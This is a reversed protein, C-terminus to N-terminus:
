RQLIMNGKAGLSGAEIRYFYPGEPMQKGSADLANWQIEHVGASQNGLNFEAVKEGNVTFISIVVPLQETLTYRIVTSSQFPNPFSEAVINTISTNVDTTQEGKSRTAPPLVPAPICCYDLELKAYDIQTDDQIYFDLNGDQLAALITTLTGGPLASLDLTVTATTGAVNWPLGVLSSIDSSWIGQGNQVLGIRDNNSEFGLARIRLILKAGTIYCNNGSFSWNFTHGFIVNMRPDDYQTSVGASYISNMYSLLTSSPSSQEAASNNLDFTDVIGSNSIRQSPSACIELNGFNLNLGMANPISNITYYVSHPATQTWGSQQIEYLIWTGSPLGTFNYYGAPDTFAIITVGTNVNRARIEWGALPSEGVDMIGNANNDRFKRGSFQSSEMTCVTTTQPTITSVNLTCLTRAGYNLPTINVNSSSPNQFAYEYSLNANCGTYGDPDTNVMYMTTNSSRHGAIVFGNSTTEEFGIKAGGIAYGGTFSLDRYSRLWRANGNSDARMLFLLFSSTSDTTVGAIAYDGNSTQRVELGPGTM